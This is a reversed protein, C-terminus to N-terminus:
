RAGATEFTPAGLATRERRKQRRIQATLAIDERSGPEVALRRGLLSELVHSAHGYSM